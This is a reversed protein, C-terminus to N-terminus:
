LIDYTNITETTPTATKGETNDNFGNIDSELRPSQKEKCYIDDDLHKNDDKTLKGKKDNTYNKTDGAQGYIVNKHNHDVDIKDNNNVDQGKQIM